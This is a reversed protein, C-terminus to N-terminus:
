KYELIVQFQRIRCLRNTKTVRDLATRGDGLRPTLICELFGGELKMRGLKINMEHFGRHEYSQGKIDSGQRNTKNAEVSSDLGSAPYTLIPFRIIGFDNVTPPVTEGADNLKDIITKKNIDHTIIEDDMQPFDLSMWISPIKNRGGNVISNGGADFSVQRLFFETEPPPVYELKKCFYFSGDDRMGTTFARANTVYQVNGTFVILPMKNKM